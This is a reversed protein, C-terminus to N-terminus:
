FGGDEDTFGKFVQAETLMETGVKLADAVERRLRARYIRVTKGSKTCAGAHGVHRRCRTTLGCHPQYVDKFGNV